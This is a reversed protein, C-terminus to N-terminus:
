KCASCIVAHILCSPSSCTLLEACFVLCCNGTTATVATAEVVVQAAMAVEVAEEEVVEAM